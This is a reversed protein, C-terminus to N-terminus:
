LTEKNTNRYKVMLEKFLQATTPPTYSIANAGAAITEQISETTPGGTAIIPVKPFSSRIKRVIKPTNNGGSVNLITAGADLRKQIDENEDVVTIIIPIELNEKILGLTENETPANLVVGLAGQEEANMALGVVRSGRTTGGGVGVFVPIDATTIIAHSIIPQPTFPYVAIVADANTNRIIAVDTSFLVSKVKKGFIVIGSVNAICEPVKIIHSRLNGNYEPTKM